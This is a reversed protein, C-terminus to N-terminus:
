NLSTIIDFVPPHEIHKKVACLQASQIVAPRYKDPFGKPLQIDLSIKGVMGTQPDRAVHQVIRLGETSLGRKQCFGLVYIGACTGISSLFMDFPTPASATPPQDTEVTFAGFHADVRTGGPFDIVMDM